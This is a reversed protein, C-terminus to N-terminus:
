LFVSHEAFDVAGQVFHVPLYVAGVLYALFCFCRAPLPNCINGMVQFRGQGGDLAISFQQGITRILLFLGYLFIARDNQLINVIGFVQDIIQLQGILKIGTSYRVIRM